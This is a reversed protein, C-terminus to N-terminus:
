QAICEFHLECALKGDSKQGDQSGTTLGVVLREMSALEEVGSGQVRGSRNGGRSDHDIRSRHLRRGSTHGRARDREASTSRSRTAGAGAGVGVITTLIDSDGVSQTRALRLGDDGSSDV